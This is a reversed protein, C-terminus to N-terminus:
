QKYRWEVVATATCELGVAHTEMRRDRCARSNGVAAIKGSYSDKQFSDLLKLLEHEYQVIAQDGVTARSRFEAATDRKM